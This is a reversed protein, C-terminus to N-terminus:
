TRINKKRNAETLISDNLVFLSTKSHTNRQYIHKIKDIHKTYKKSRMCFENLNYDEYFNQQKM